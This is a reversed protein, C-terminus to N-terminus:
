YYWTNKAVHSVLNETLVMMDIILMPKTFKSCLLSLTIALQFAENRFVRGIEYVGEM